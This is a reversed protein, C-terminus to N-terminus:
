PGSSPRREAQGRLTELHEKYRAADSEYNGLTIVCSVANPGGADVDLLYTARTLIGGANVEAVQFGVDTNPRSKLIEQLQAVLEHLKM